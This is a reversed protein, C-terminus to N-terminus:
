RKKGPLQFPCPRGPCHITIHIRTWDWPNPFVPQSDATMAPIEHRVDEHKDSAKYSEIIFISCIIPVVDVPFPRASIAGKTGLRSM